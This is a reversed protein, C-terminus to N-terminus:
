SFAGDDDNAIQVPDLVLRREPLRKATKEWV